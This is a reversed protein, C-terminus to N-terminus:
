EGGKMMERYADAVGKPKDLMDITSEVAEPGRGLIWEEVGTGKQLIGKRMLAMQDNYGIAGLERSTVIDGPAKKIGIKDLKTLVDELILKEKAGTVTPAAARVAEGARVGERKWAPAGAWAVVSRIQSREGSSIKKIAMAAEEKSANAVSEAVGRLQEPDLHRKGIEMVKKYIHQQAPSFTAWSRPIQGLEAALSPTLRTAAKLEERAARGYLQPIPKTVGARIVKPIKSIDRIRPALGVGIYTLPDTAIDATLQLTPDKFFPTYERRGLFYEGARQFPKVVARAAGRPSVEEKEGLGKLLHTVLQQGSRGLRLSPTFMEEMAGKLAEWSVEGESLPMQPYEWPRADKYAQTFLDKFLEPDNPMNAAEMREVVWLNRLENREGPMLKKWKPHARIKDFTGPLPM